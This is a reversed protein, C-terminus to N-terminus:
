KKLFVNWSAIAALSFSEELPDSCLGNLVKQSSRELKLVQSSMQLEHPCTLPGAGVPTQFFNIGIRMSSEAPSVGGTTTTLALSM